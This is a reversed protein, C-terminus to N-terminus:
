TKFAYRKCFGAGSTTGMPAFSIRGSLASFRMNYCNIKGRKALRTLHILTFLSGREAIKEVGKGFQFLRGKGRSIFTRKTIVKVAKLVSKKKVLYKRRIIIYDAFVSTM